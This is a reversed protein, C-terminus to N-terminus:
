GPASAPAGCAPDVWLAELWAAGPPDALLRGVVMGLWRDGDVAVVTM